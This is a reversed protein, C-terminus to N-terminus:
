MWQNINHFWYDIKNKASFKLCNLPFSEKLHFYHYVKSTIGAWFKCLVHIYTSNKTPSIYGEHVIKWRKCFMGSVFTVIRPIPLYLHYHIGLVQLCFIVFALDQLVCSWCMQTQLVIPASALLCTSQSAGLGTPLLFRPPKRPSVKRFESFVLMVLWTFKSTPLHSSNVTACTSFGLRGHSAPLLNASLPGASVPVYSM